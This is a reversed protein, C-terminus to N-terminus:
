FTSHLLLEAPVKFEIIYIPTAADITVLQKKYYLHANPM